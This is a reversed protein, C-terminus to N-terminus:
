SDYWGRIWSQEQCNFGDIDYSAMYSLQNWDSSEFFISAQIHLFYPSSSDEIPLIEGTQQQNGSTGKEGNNSGGRAMSLTQISFM